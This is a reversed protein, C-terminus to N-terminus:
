NPHKGILNYMNLIEDRKILTTRIEERKGTIAYHM